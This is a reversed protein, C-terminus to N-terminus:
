APDIVIGVGNKSTVEMNASAMTLSSAGGLIYKFSSVLLQMFYRTGNQTTVMVSVSDYSDNATQLADQGVDDNDLLMSLSFRGEDYITKFKQTAGTEVDNFNEITWEKGFEGIDGIEGIKAPLPPTTFLTNYGAVDYTAPQTSTIHITSGVTSNGAM